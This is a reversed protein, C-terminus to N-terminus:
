KKTAVAAVLKTLATIAEMMKDLKEDNAAAVKMAVAAGPRGGGKTWGQGEAFILVDELRVYMGDDIEDLIPVNGALQSKQDGNQDWSKTARVVKEEREIPNGDADKRKVRWTRINRDGPKTEESNYPVRQGIENDFVMAWIGRVENDGRGITRLPIGYYKAIESAHVIELDGMEKSLTLNGDEDYRRNMDHVVLVKMGDHNRVTHAM